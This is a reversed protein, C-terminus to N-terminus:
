NREDLRWSTALVQLRLYQGPVLPSSRLHLAELRSRLEIALIVFLHLLLEGDFTDENLCVCGGM